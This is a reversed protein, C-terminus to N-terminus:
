RLQGQLRRGRRQRKKVRDASEGPTAVGSARGLRRACRNHSHHFPAPGSLTVKIFPADGVIRKAEGTALLNPIETVLEAHALGKFGQDAAEAVSVDDTNGPTLGSVVEEDAPDGDHWRANRRRLGLHEPCKGLFLVPSVERAHAERVSREPVGIDSPRLAPSPRRDDDVTVAV